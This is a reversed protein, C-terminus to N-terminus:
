VKNSETATIFNYFDDFADNIAAITGDRAGNASITDNNADYADIFADEYVAKYANSYDYNYNSIYTDYEDQDCVLSWTNGLHHISTKYFVHFQNNQKNVFIGTANEPWTKYEKIVKHM